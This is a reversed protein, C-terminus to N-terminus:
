SIDSIISSVQDKASDLERDADEISSYADEIHRQLRELDNSLDGAGGLLGRLENKQDENVDDFNEIVHEVVDEMGNDNTMSDLFLEQTQQDCNRQIMEGNVRSLVLRLLQEIEDVPMQRVISELNIKATIIM